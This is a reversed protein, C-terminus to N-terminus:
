RDSFVYQPDNELGRVVSREYEMDIKPFEQIRKEIMYKFEEEMSRVRKSVLFSEWIEWRLTAMMDELQEIGEKKDMTEYVHMPNGFKVYCCDTHYEAILPIIPAGSIRALDIVGWYLPLMPKSPTLNWTGEPFMLLHNGTRLIRLMKEFGNRKSQRDKRDIYIAGNLWFLAKDLIGLPQKGVLVLFHKQIVEGAVPIDHICSHNMVYILPGDLDPKDNLVKLSFTRRGPILKLLFPHLIQRWKLSISKTNM